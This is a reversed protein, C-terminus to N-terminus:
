AIHVRANGLNWARNCCNTLDSFKERTDRLNYKRKLGLVYSLRVITVFPSPDRIRILWSQSSHTFSWPPVADLPDERETLYEAYNEKRM